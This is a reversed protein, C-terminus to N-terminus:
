IDFSPFESGLKPRRANKQTNVFGLNQYACRTHRHAQRKGLPKSWIKAQPKNRSTTNLKNRRAYGVTKWFHLWNEYYFKIKCLLVDSQVPLLLKIVLYNFFVNQLSVWKERYWIVRYQHGLDYKPPLEIIKKYVFVYYIIPIIIEKGRPQYHFCSIEIFIEYIDLPLLL